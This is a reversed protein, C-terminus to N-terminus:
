KRSSPQGKSPPARAWGPATTSRPASRSAPRRSFRRGTARSRGRRPLRRTWDEAAEAKGGPRIAHERYQRGRGRQPPESYTYLEEHRRHFADKVKAITDANLEFNGIEVTCEHVQGVYRMDISRRIDIQERKFGDSELHKVGQAEIKKYLKDITAYAAAHDLRVPCTAMYNYKVDSIIQGFACLGSALKPLIVTDVGMERALSTIHAATAGGAGVLVFDRPDYGREVSVRRIGNVMNNNVITYM